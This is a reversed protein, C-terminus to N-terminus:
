VLGHVAPRFPNSSDNTNSIATLRRRKHWRRTVEAAALATATLLWTPVPEGESQVRTGEDHLGGLFRNVAEEISSRDFPLFTSILDNGRPSPLEHGSDQAGALADREAAVNSADDTAPANLNAPAVANGVGELSLATKFFDPFSGISLAPGANAGILVPLGISGGSVIGISGVVAAIAQPTVPGATPDQDGNDSAPDTPAALARASNAFAAPALAAHAASAQSSSSSSAVIVTVSFSAPGRGAAPGNPVSAIANPTPTATPTSTALPGVNPGYVQGTSPSHDFNSNSPGIATASDATTRQACGGTGVRDGSRNTAGTIPPNQDAGASGGSFLRPDPGFPGPLASLLSREDLSDLAPQCRRASRRGTGM